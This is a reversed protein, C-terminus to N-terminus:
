PSVGTDVERDIGTSAWELVNGLVLQLHCWDQLGLHVGVGARALVPGVRPVRSADTDDVWM